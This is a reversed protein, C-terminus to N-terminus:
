PAPAHTVRALRPDHRTLIARVYYAVPAHSALAARLHDVAITLGGGAPLADRANIALNLVALELQNADILALPLQDPLETRLAVHAGVSRQLLDSMGAVLDKLSRPEVKLDQRRAFALLRQTLAAGRWAGQLAGDILRAAKPDNPLHKRLLELNGLVAMLLNNFDHAVGGTLQGIIEM